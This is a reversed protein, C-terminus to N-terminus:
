QGTHVSIGEAASRMEDNEFAVDVLKAGLSEIQEKVALRVDSAEVVAGLRKTTAIAQLGAVGAGLILVRAAKVTGTATMLMPMFRQYMNCAVQVAKCGTINALSSLVDLSQPPSRVHRPM